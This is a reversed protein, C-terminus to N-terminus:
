EMRELYYTSSEGYDTQGGIYSFYEIVDLILYKGDRYSIISPVYTETGMRAAVNSVFMAAGNEPLNVAKSFRVGKASICSAWFSPTSEINIMSDVIPTGYVSNLISTKIPQCRNTRFGGIISDKLTTLSLVEAYFTEKRISTLACIRDLHTKPDGFGGHTSFMVKYRVISDKSSIQSDSEQDAINSLFLKFDELIDLQAATASDVQGSVRTAALLIILILIPSKM